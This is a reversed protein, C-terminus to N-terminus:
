RVQISAIIEGAVEVDVIKDFRQQNRERKVTVPCLTLNAIDIHYFETLNGGRVSRVIRGAEEEIYKDGGPEVALFSM